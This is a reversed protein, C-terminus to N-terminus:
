MSTLRHLFRIDWLKEAFIAKVRKMDDYNPIRDKRSMSLHMWERGDEFPATTVIVRLGSRDQYAGGDGFRQLMKWDSPLVLPIADSIPTAM